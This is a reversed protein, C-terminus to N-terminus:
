IMPRLRCARSSSADRGRPCPGPEPVPVPEVVVFVRVPGDEELWVTEAGVFLTAEVELDQNLGSIDIPETTVEDLGLVQSRAGTLWVRRPEVRLEGLQFGPAPEGELDLRIGVSKRGREELQVLIRSPSHSVARAGRPLPLRAVDVEVDSEGVKSGALDVRYTLRAPSVNRLAARSGSVRLNIADASQGTIVQEEDLGHLEVPVDFAMEIPSTGHAVTWLLFAIVIALLLFGVHLNRFFGM